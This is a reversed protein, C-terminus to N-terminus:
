FDDVSVVLMYNCKDTKIIKDNKNIEVHEKVFRPCKHSVLTPKESYTIGFSAQLLQPKFIQTMALAWIGIAISIFICRDFISM